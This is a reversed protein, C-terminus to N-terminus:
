GLLVLAVGAGMLGAALLRRALLPEGFFVRDLLMAFVNAGARKVADVYAVFLFRFAFLQLLFATAMVAAAAFVWLGERGAGRLERRLRGAPLLALAVFANLTFAYVPESAHLVARRDIANGAAFLLAVGLAMRSAPERLGRLPARLLEGPSANLLMAGVVVALVGVLGGAHPRQGLLLWGTAVTAIPTFSLFPVTLSLPARRVATILLWNAAIAVAAGIAVWAFFPAQMRPMGTLAVGAAHVPLQAATIGLLIALPSLSAALRKRLADLGTWAAGSALALLWGLLLTSTIM